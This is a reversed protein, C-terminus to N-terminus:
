ALAAVADAYQAHITVGRQDVVNQVFGPSLRSADQYIGTKEHVTTVLPDGKRQQMTPCNLSTPLLTRAFPQGPLRTWLEVFGTNDITWKVGLIVDLWKGVVSQLSCVPQKYIIEAQWYNSSNLTLVGSNRELVIGATTVGFGFPPSTLTPYGYQTLEGFSGPEFGPHILYSSAYWNIEGPVITRGKTLEASIKGSALEGSWWPNCSTRTLRVKYVSGWRPDPQVTIDSNVYNLGDNSGNFPAPSSTATLPAPPLTGKVATARLDLLPVTVPPPPTVPQLAAIVNLISQECLGNETTPFDALHRRKSEGYGLQTRHLHKLAAQAESLATVTGGDAM